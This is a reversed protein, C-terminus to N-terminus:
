QGERKPEKRSIRGSEDCSQLKIGRAALINNRKNSEKELKKRTNLSWKHPTVKVMVVAEQRCRKKKKVTKLM